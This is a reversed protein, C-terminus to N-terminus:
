LIGEDRERLLAILTDVERIINTASPLTNAVITVEDAIKKSNKFLEELSSDSQKSFNELALLHKQWEESINEVQAFTKKFAEQLQNFFDESSNSIDNFKAESKKINTAVEEGVINITNSFEEEAKRMNSTLAEGLNDVLTSLSKESQKLTNSFSDEITSINNELKNTSLILKDITNDISKQWGLSTAELNNGVLRIKKALYELSDDVEERKSSTYRYRDREM